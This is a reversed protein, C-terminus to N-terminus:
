VVISPKARASGFLVSDSMSKVYGCSQEAAARIDLNMGQEAIDNCVNVVIQHFSLAFSSGADFQGACHKRFSRHGALECHKHVPNELRRRAAAQSALDSPYAVATFQRFTHESLLQQRLETQMRLGAVLRETSNQSTTYMGILRHVDIHTALQSSRIKEEKTASPNIAMLASQASGLFDSVKNSTFTTDGWQSAASRTVASDISEFQQALTEHTVDRSEADEMWAVSFMDALCTNLSEGNVVASQGCYTGWSPEEPGAASLAYVGPIQLEEFMSGSECAEVYIALKSFMNTDSMTQLAGQLDSKHMADEPFSILGPAGHDSFFIFVNDDATSKLVKGSGQGTLVNLFNDPNVDDGRYDIHPGCIAYVDPGDPANFLQGPFPNDMSNVVDDYMMLIINEEPIGKSRV